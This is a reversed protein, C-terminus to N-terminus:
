PMLADSLNFTAGCSNAPDRYWFQINVALADSMDFSTSVTNNSASVPTGRIVQGGVCRTGCGFPLSAQNPGAYLLGPPNPVDTVTFDAVGTGYAGGTYTLTAGNASVSNANGAGCYSSPGGGGLCSQNAAGPTRDGGLFFDLFDACWAGPYDGGRYIGAPFFSGDPGLVQAGDYNPDAPDDTMAILDHITALNPIETVLDGDPDVNMGLLSTINSTNLTEVVYFTETGNEFSDQTGTGYDPSVSTNGLVFYGSSPISYGTLDYARDLIGNVPVQGEVELVMFGDLSLGPPGVLEIFEETDTGTHSIYLENFFVTQASALTGLALSTLAAGIVHQTRM